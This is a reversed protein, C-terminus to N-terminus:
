KPARVPLVLFGRQAEDLDTSVRDIWLAYRKGLLEGAKIRDKDSAEPNRFIKTLTELVEDGSAIQKKDAPAQLSQLAARITPKRLNDTAVSHLTNDNGKYGARKASQVGNGTERYALVFKRQKPTLADLPNM